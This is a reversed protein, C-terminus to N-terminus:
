YKKILETLIEMDIFEVDPWTKIVKQLLAQLAVLGNKRNEPEILGCFNVRHSSVIAPKGWFFAAKIQDFTFNVWDLNKSNPEFMCNRVIKMYIVLLLKVMFSEKSKHHDGLTKYVM